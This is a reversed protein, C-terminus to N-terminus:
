PRVLSQPSAEVRILEGAWASGCSLGDGYPLRDAAETLENVVDHVLAQDCYPSAILLEDGGIRAAIAEPLRAAAAAVRRGVQQILRDGVVHGYTDNVKKLGNVDCLVVTLATADTPDSAWAELREDAGRRNALGTLADTTAQGHLQRQVTVLAGAAVLQRASVVIALATAVLAVILSSSEGVVESILLVSFGAAVALYPMWSVRQLRWAAGSAPEARNTSTQSRAALVFLALAVGYTINLADGSAFDGNLTAYAYLGDGAVFLCLAAIILWLAKRMSAAVGGFLLWAVGVILIMDGVPYALSFALQMTGQGGVRATPAILFYWVLAAAGLAPTMLDLWLTM